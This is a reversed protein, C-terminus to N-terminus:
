FGRGDGSSARVRCWRFLGPLGPSHDPPADRLRVSSFPNAIRQM